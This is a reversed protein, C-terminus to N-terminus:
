DNADHCISRRNRATYVDHRTQDAKRANRNLTAGSNFEEQLRALEDSRILEGILSATSYEPPRHPPVKACDRSVPGPQHATRSRATRCDIGPSVVMLHEPQSFPEWIDAAVDTM